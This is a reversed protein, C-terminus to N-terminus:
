ALIAKVAEQQAKNLPPAESPSVDALAPGEVKARGRRATKNVPLVTMLAQNMTCGYRERMWSALAMMRDELVVSKRSLGTLPLIKEEDIAPTDSLGIVFGRIQRRNFPIDVRSGLRIKEELAEPVRYQFSRDLDSASINVIIDAYLPM